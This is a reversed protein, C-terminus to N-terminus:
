LALRQTIIRVKALILSTQGNGPLGDRRIRRQSSPALLSGGPCQDSLFSKNLYRWDAWAWQSIRSRM